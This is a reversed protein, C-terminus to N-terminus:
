LPRMGDYHGRDVRSINRAWIVADINGAAQNSHDGEQINLDGEGRFVGLSLNSGNMHGYEILIRALHDVAFNDAYNGTWGAALLAAQVAGTTAITHLEDIRPIRLNPVIELNQVIISERLAQL